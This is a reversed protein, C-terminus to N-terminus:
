CFPCQFHLCIKMNKNDVSEQVDALNIGAKVKSEYSVYYDIQDANEKNRVEVIGNYVADYTSLESVEVIKELSATTLREKQHRQDSHSHLAAALAFVVFVLVLIFSVLKLHKKGQKPVNLRQRRSKEPQTSPTNTKQETKM